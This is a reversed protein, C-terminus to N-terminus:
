TIILARSSVKYKKTEEVLLLIRVMYLTTYQTVEAEDITSCRCYDDGCTCETNNCYEYDFVYM